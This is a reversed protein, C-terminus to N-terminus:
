TMVAVLLRNPQFELVPADVVVVVSGVAAVSVERLCFEGTGVHDFVLWYGCLPQVLYEPGTMLAPVPFQTLDGRRHAGAGSGATGGCGRNSLM